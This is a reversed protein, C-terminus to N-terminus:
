EGCGEYISERSDDLIFGPPYRHARSKVDAMWADFNKRWDELSPLAPAATPTGNGDRETALKLILQEVTIGLAAARNSLREHTETRLTVIPM